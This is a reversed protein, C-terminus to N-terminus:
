PRQRLPRGLLDLLARNFAGAQEYMAWHGANPVVRFDVDPDFRRLVAEQDGPPHPRDHEGWIGDVQVTLRPLAELLKDPLVFPVPNFRGRPGNIAQLHVALDDASAPNHLMLGLLLARQAARREEGELGRLRVREINGVPTNLGGTGVVVVRRVLEPHFVALYAVAAGGFSFGVADLPIDPAILERVGQALIHSYTERDERPPMASEGNGPLDPTWVTREAALADINRIWHSWAGHSGHALLVPPGSGWSRWVLSGGGCPTEFRRARREFEDVIEAPDIDAPSTLSNM